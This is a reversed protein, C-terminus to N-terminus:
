VNIIHYGTAGNPFPDAINNTQVAGTSDTARVMVRYEKNSGPQNLEAAWIVWSKDSPFIEVALRSPGSSPLFNDSRVLEISATSVYTFM